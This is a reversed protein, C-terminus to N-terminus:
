SALKENHAPEIDRRVESSKPIRKVTNDVACRVLLTTDGESLMEALFIVLEDETEEAFYIKSM